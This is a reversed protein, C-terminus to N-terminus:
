KQRAFYIIYPIWCKQLILVYHSWVRQRRSSNIVTIVSTIFLWHTQSAARIGAAPLEVFCTICECARQLLQQGSRLFGGWFAGRQNWENLRLNQWRQSASHDLQLGSRFCRFTAKNLVGFCFHNMGLAPASHKWLPRKKGGHFRRVRISNIKKKKDQKCNDDWLVTWILINWKPIKPDPPPPTIVNAWSM